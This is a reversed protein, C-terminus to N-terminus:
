FMRKQPVVMKSFRWILLNLGGNISWLGHPSVRRVQSSVMSSSMRRGPNAERVCSTRGVFRIRPKFDMLRVWIIRIYCPINWSIGYLNLIYGMYDWIYCPIKWSIGYLISNTYFFGYLGLYLLPYEMINWIYSPNVSHIAWKCLPARVGLYSQFASNIMTFNPIEDAVEPPLISLIHHKLGHM